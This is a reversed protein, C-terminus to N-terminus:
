QHGKRSTLSKFPHNGTKKVFISHSVPPDSAARPGDSASGEDLSQTQKATFQCTQVPPNSTLSLSPSILSNNRQKEVCLKRKAITNPNQIEEHSHEKLKEKSWRRRRERQVQRRRQKPLFQKKWKYTRGYNNSMKKERKSPIEFTGTREIAFSLSRDLNGNISISFYKM